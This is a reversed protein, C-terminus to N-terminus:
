ALLKQTVEFLVNLGNEIDKKTSFEEPSHSIGNKSPIFIMATPCVNGMMQADHGAGSPMEKVSLDLHQCTNVINDLIDGAFPERNIVGFQSLGVTLNPFNSILSISFNDTDFLVDANVSKEIEADIAAKIDEKFIIPIVIVAAILLV